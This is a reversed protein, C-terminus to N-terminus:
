FELGSRGAGAGAHPSPLRVLVRGGGASDFAEKAEAERRLTTRLLDAFGALGALPRLWPDQRLAASCFFGEGVLGALIEVAEPGAGHHALLRALYFKAEPDHAPRALAQRVLGVASEPHGSLSADLSAMLTRMWGSRVGSYRRRILLGAAEATRGTVALIAADLYYGATAGYAELARDWEGQLFLTHAVSTTARSDLQCARSHAAVSEELLGCFRCAQVLGAFLDPDNPHAEARALLRVMAAQANGLDAEIQTYLNHAISLDPNLSFARHFAWQAAELNEAGEEGFKELFRYCRGLRAWAPAYNADESLCEKYLDRALELNELTRERLLHNARLYFEYARASGPVDHSLTRRERDTLQLMLVDVIRHVLTDQVEFVRDQGTQCTFSALLTGTPAQILEANVRLQDGDCLITGALLLDVDAEQAVRRPDPRDEGFHAALLSSRVTVTPLGALTASIAEPLSRGLFELGEGGHVLPFPLAIFRLNRNAQSEEPPAASAAASGRKWVSTVAPLFRYGLKPVTQIYRCSAASDNLAKRL